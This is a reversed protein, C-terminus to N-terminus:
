LKVLVTSAWTNTQGRTDKVKVFQYPNGRLSMRVEPDVYQVTGTAGSVGRRLNNGQKPLRVPDGARLGCDYGVYVVNQQEMSM